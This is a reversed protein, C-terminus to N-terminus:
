GRARQLNEEREGDAALPKFNRKRIDAAQRRPQHSNDCIPPYGGAVSGDGSMESGDGSM